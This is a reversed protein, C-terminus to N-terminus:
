SFTPAAPNAGPELSGRLDPASLLGLSGRPSAGLTSAFVSDGGALWSRDRRQFCFEAQSADVITGTM